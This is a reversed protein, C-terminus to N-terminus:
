TEPKASLVVGYATLALGLVVLTNVPEKFFVFGILALVLIQSVAILSAQVASTFRLGQVQFFFGIMNCVGSIWIVRWAMPPVAHFAEFGKRFYLSSGFVVIGVGLVIAMMLTVPLPAYLRQPANRPFDYGVWQTVQFSLWVSNEDNWFRRGVQRLIIVYVSYSLGAFVVGAAVALFLGTSTQSATDHLSENLLEKGVSLLIVAVILIGIAIKRRHSLPDGLYYRGLLATGLLTSSQVLPVTVVLGILAFGIVHLHAGFLQCIVAAVVLYYLLRKSVWNYRGQGYRLALWPLLLSLGITEKFFLIWDIDVKMETLLRIITNSAGYFTTSLLILITGAWRERSPGVSPPPSM